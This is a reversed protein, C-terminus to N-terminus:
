SQASPLLSQLPVHVVLMSQAPWFLQMFPLQPLFCFPWVQVGPMPSQLDPKQTSPTQQSEAQVPVQTEHASVLERPCQVGTGLSAGSGRLPQRSMPGALQRVLPRQLPLRPQATYGVPVIQLSPAHSGTPLRMVWGLVQWFLTHVGGAAV